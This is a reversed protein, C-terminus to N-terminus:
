TSLAFSKKIRKPNKRLKKFELVDDTKLEIVLLQASTSVTKQYFHIDFYPFFSIFKQIIKNQGSCSHSFLYLYKIHREINNEIYHMLM